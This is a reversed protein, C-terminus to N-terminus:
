GKDLLITRSSVVKKERRRSVILDDLLARVEQIMGLDYCDFVAKLRKKDDEDLRYGLVVAM